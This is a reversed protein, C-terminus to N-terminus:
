SVFYCVFVRWMRLTLKYTFNTFLLGHEGGIYMTKLQKKQSDSSIDVVLKVLWQWHSQQYAAVFRTGGSPDKGRGKGQALTLCDAIVRRENRILNHRYM